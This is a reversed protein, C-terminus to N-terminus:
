EVEINYRQMMYSAVDYMINVGYDVLYENPAFLLQPANSNENFPRRYNPWEKGSRFIKTELNFPGKYSIDLLAKMVDDYNVNGFLPVMHDDNYGNNDQIHLGFLLDKLKIINAYQDLANVNAHGTDWCARILNHNGLLERLHIIDEATEIVFQRKYIKESINEVMLFVNYKEAFPLISSFYIVNKEFMEDKNECFSFGAHVTMRDINLEACAKIAYQADKIQRNFNEEGDHPNYKYPCHAMTFDYNYKECVAKVDKIFKEYFEDSNNEAVFSPFSLDFHKFKNTNAFASLRQPYDPYVTATACTSVSLKM